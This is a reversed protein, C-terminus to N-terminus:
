ARISCGPSGSYSHRPAMIYSETAVAGETHVIIARNTASEYM